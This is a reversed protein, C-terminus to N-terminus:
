KIAKPNYEYFIGELIANQTTKVGSWTWDITNPEETLPNDEFSIDGSVKHGKNAVPKGSVYGNLTLTTDRANQTYAGFRRIAKRQFEETIEVVNSKAIYDIIIGDDTIDDTDLQVIKLATQAMIGYTSSRVFRMNTYPYSHPGEWMENLVNYSMVVSSYTVGDIAVDGLYLKVNYEDAIVRVKSTDSVADLIDQIAWGMDKISSGNTMYFGGSEQGSSKLIPASYIWAYGQCEAYADKNAVGVPIYLDPEVGSQAKRYMYTAREKFIMYTNGAFLGGMVEGAGDDPNVVLYDGTTDNTNWTIKSAVADNWISSFLVYGPKGTIQSTFVRSGMTWVVKSELQVCGRALNSTFAGLTDSEHMLSAGVAFIRGGLQTFDYETITTPFGTALQWNTGDYYRLIASGSENWVGFPSTYLLSDLSGVGLTTSSTSANANGLRRSGKRAQLAGVKTHIDVNYALSLSAKYSKKIAQRSIRKERVVGQNFIPTSEFPM